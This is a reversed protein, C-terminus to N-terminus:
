TTIIMHMNRVSPHADAEDTLLKAALQMDQSSRIVVHISEPLGAPQEIELHLWHNTL